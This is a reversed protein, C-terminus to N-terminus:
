GRVKAKRMARLKAKLISPPSKRRLEAVFAESERISEDVEAQHDFYYALAAYVQGLTLGYESAIEEATMGMREHWIMINEVTIRHGEIRPKGHVVGPSSVIHQDLSTAM